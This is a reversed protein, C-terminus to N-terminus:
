KRAAIALGALAFLAGICWQWYKLYFEFITRTIRASLSRRHDGGMRVFPSDYDKEYPIFQGEYWAKLSQRM